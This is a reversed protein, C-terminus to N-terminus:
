YQLAQAIVCTIETVTGCGQIRRRHWVGVKDFKGVNLGHPRDHRLTDMPRRDQRRLRRSSDHSRRSSCPQRPIPEVQLCLMELLGTRELRPPHGRPHSLQRGVLPTAPDDRDRGSICGLPVRKGSGREANGDRDHHWGGRIRRLGGCRGSVTGPDDEFAVVDAGREVGHLADTVLLAQDEAMRKVIRMDNGAM